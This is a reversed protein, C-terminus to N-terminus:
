NAAQPKSRPPPGDGLPWRSSVIVDVGSADQVEVHTADADRRYQLTVSGTGVRLDSVRV